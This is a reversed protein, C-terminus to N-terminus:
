AKELREMLENLFDFGKQWFDESTIDIGIKKALPAAPVSGGARFFSMIKEVSKEGQERYMAYFAYALLNGFAYSYCYFPAWYIHPIAYWENSFLEDVEVDPGFQDKITQLYAKELDENSKGEEILKHAEREFITFGIQRAMSGYAYNLREWVMDIASPDQKMLDEMYLTEAFISATEAIPLSAHFTLMGKDFALSGHVAHGLEHALTCSSKFDGTFSLMVYPMVDTSPYTCFAGTLKNPQVLSHVHKEDLVKQAQAAFEPSFAKFAGLVNQVAQDYTFKREPSDVPAYADFRTFKALGLKKKKLQFYKQFIPYNRKVVRLLADVAEGPINNGLNRPHMHSKYGRLTIKEAHWDRVIARYIEGLVNKNEKFKTLLGRYAAARVVPDKSRYLATLEERNYEKGQVNFTYGSLIVDYVKILADVGTTDKISILKESKEDLIHKRTLILKEFYARSTGSAESFQKAKEEPLDKFWMVFFLLKNGMETCFTEITGILASLKQDAQHVKFDLDVFHHLKSVLTDIDAMEDVLNKFTASDITNLKPRWTEFEAVRESIEKKAAEIGQPLIPKLDWAEPEYTM